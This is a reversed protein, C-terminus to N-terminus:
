FYVLTTHDKRHHEDPTRNSPGAMFNDVQIHQFVLKTQEHDIILQDMKEELTRQKVNRAKYTWCKVKPYNWATRRNSPSTFTSKYYLWCEQFFYVKQELCWNWRWCCLIINWQWWYLCYSVFIKSRWVKTNTITHYSGHFKYLCLV